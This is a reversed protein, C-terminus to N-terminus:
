VPAEPTPIGRTVTEFSETTASVVPEEVMPMTLWPVGAEPAFAQGIVIVFVDSVTTFGPSETFLAMRVLQTVPQLPAAAALKLAANGEVPEAIPKLSGRPLM